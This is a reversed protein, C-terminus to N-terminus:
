RAAFAVESAKSDQMNFSQLKSNSSKIGMIATIKRYIDTNDYFGNFLEHGLGLAFVPVPLGTHAFSTYHMGAKNNVIHCLTITLPEYSGYLVKEVDSYNRKDSPIMSHRLADRLRSIESATLVSHPRKQADPHNPTILGYAKEIEPFLDELKASASSTNRRYSDVVKNFELYSKSVNDLVHFYTEYATGAFGITLGGCEHDGTVIILTDHPHKEYFNVAEEVAEAFAITDHISSAADNAHNAWDIKGGEVMLFFGRPNDLLEIGKRTFDALSLDDPKRDIEYVLAADADLVPNIAVAKGDSPSLKLIEERTNVLKYGAEKVVEHIHKMNGERGRPSLFGGGGFFDFGSKALQKGIEYYEGRSPVKAYFAAPTAHNIPVSSIIGIKYGAKKLPETFPTVTHQRTVDMNIVGNLTKIGSAIATATSASDPIFSSADFTQATGATPFDSFVLRATEVGEPKQRYGLYMETSSIQPYSMGDGIFLFVYKPTKGTYSVSAVSSEATHLAFANGVLSMSLVLALLVFLVRSFKVKM